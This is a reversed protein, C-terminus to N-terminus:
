GYLERTHTSTKLAPRYALWWVAYDRFLQDSPAEDVEHGRVYM